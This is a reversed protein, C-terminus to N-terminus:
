LFALDVSNHAGARMAQLFVSRVEYRPAGHGVRGINYERHLSADSPSSRLPSLARRRGKRDSSEEDSAGSRHAEPM